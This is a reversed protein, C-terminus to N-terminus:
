PWHSTLWKSINVELCCGASCGTNRDSETGHRTAEIAGCAHSATTPHSAPTDESSHAPKTTLGARDVVPMVPPDQQLTPKADTAPDSMATTTTQASPQIIPATPYSHHMPAAPRSPKPRALSQDAHTPIATNPQPSTTIWQHPSPGRRPIASSSSSAKCDKLAANLDMATTDM